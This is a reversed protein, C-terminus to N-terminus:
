PKQSECISGKAECKQTQSLKQNKALVQVSYRNPSILSISSLKPRYPCMWTFSRRDRKGASCVNLLWMFDVLMWEQAWKEGEGIGLEDTLHENFSRIFSTCEQRLTRTEDGAM